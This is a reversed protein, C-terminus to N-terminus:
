SKLRTEFLRLIRRYEDAWSTENKFGHDEVPYIAVEWNEKRLEILRQVLRITDQFHVNVDVMGHCILLPSKLGEAFYIPSSRKYAEEDVQPLSLIRGTYDHNYHAWDTVPRLAAGAAFVDPMTFLAMLTTFGGYSGGYIGIRKPDVGHVDALYKAGDIQDTLDKGGMHRYIATRWGRGYGASGRYDIDLVVYGREMLLHHFMYERYYTSWWKHVNQMYGAGHVFIVAPGGQSFGEPKYLRARVKVGDRATFTVIEPAIWPYAKFKDSPTETVQKAEANPKNEHLYLEPPKNSYSRLIALTSEDPSLWVDNRGELYTIRTRDGGELPMTYLHHEGPDGENSEFFWRAKDKSLRPASVEFEGKTLQKPQGGDASATYLHSYGDHESLFYITKDDPMWGADHGSGKVWADDHLHDIVKTKGTEPDLLLLWRDKFDASLGLLLAKKGDESWATFSLNVEREGQGHDIWLTEGDEIRVLGMKRKDTQDGVKRRPKLEETYGSETVYSPVIATKAQPAEERLTFLVLKEDPSLRMNIVSQNPKLYFAKREPKKQKEKEKEREKITEFLEKQQKELWKQSETKEAEPKSSQFNTAQILSGDELSLIFLNNNMTFYVKKGDKTFHADSKRDGTRTIRRRKGIAAEILFLDNDEIFLALRRDETYEAESPPVNEAEEKTLERPPEGDESVVFTSPEQLRPPRWEFYVQSGDTSWRVKTPANGLLDPKMIEDVTLRFKSEALVHVAEKNSRLISLISLLLNKINL